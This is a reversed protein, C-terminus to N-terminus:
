YYNTIFKFKIRISVYELASKMQVILSTYEYITMCQTKVYTKLNGGEIKRKKDSDSNKVMIWVLTPGFLSSNLPTESLFLISM